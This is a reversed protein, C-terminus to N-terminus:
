VRMRGRAGDRRGRTQNRQSPPIDSQRIVSKAMMTSRLVPRPRDLNTTKRPPPPLNEDRHDLVPLVASHPALQDTPPAPLSDAPPLPDTPPSCSDTTSTVALSSLRRTLQLISGAEETSTRRPAIAEGEVPVTVRGTRAIWAASEDQFYSTFLATGMHEVLFERDEPHVSHLLLLKAEETLSLTRMHIPLSPPICFGFLTRLSFIQRIQSSIILRMGEIVEHQTAPNIIKMRRSFQANGEKAVVSLHEHPPGLKVALEELPSVRPISAAGLVTDTEVLVVVVGEEYGHDPPHLVGALFPVPAALFGLLPPPVLPLYLNAWAYPRILWPLALTMATLIGQEKCQLVIKRELLLATILTIITPMSLHGLLAGMGYRVAAAEAQGEETEADWRVLVPVGGFDVRRGAVCEMPAPVSVRLYDELIRQTTHSLWSDYDQAWGRECGDTPQAPGGEEETKNQARVEETVMAHLVRLHVEFLPLRSLACLCRRHKLM